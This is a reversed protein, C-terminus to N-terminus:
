IKNFIVVRTKFDEKSSWFKGRLRNSLGAFHSVLWTTKQLQCIAEILILGEFDAKLALLKTMLRM